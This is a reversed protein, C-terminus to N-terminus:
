LDQSLHRSFLLSPPSSIGSPNSSPAESRAQHFHGSRSGKAVALGKCISGWGVWPNGPPATTFFGGALALSVLSVPEIGPHLLDGPPPFPLELIRTQLIGHVSSGPPSCDISNCLTLCSQACMCTCAGGSPSGLGPWTM